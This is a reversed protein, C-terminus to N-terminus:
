PRRHNAPPSCCAAACARQPRSWEARPVRKDWIPCVKALPPRRDVAHTMCLDRLQKIDRNQLWARPFWADRGHACRCRLAGHSKSAFLFASARFAPPFCSPPFSRGVAQGLLSSSPLRCKRAPKCIRVDAGVRLPPSRLTNPSLGPQWFLLSHTATCDLLDQHYVFSRGTCGRGDILARIVRM